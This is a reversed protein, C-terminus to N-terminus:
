GVRSATFLIALRHIPTTQRYEYSECFQQFAESRGDSIFAYAESINPENTM